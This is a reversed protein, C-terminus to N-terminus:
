FKDYTEDYHHNNPIKDVERLEQLKSSGTSINIRNKFNRESIGFHIAESLLKKTAVNACHQTRLSKLSCFLIYFNLMNNLNSEALRIRSQRQSYRRIM